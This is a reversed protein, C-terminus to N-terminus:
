ILKPVAVVPRINTGGLIFESQNIYTGVEDQISKLLGNDTIDLGRLFYGNRTTAQTNTMYVRTNFMDADEYRQKISEIALSVDGISVQTEIGYDRLIEEVGEKISSLPQKDYFTLDVVNKQIAVPNQISNANTVYTDSKAVNINSNILNLFAPSLRNSIDATLLPNLQIPARTNNLLYLFDQIIQECEMYRYYLIQLTLLRAYSKDDLIRKMKTGEIIGVSSYVPTLLFNVGLFRLSSDELLRVYLGDRISKSLFQQIDGGLIRIKVLTAIIPYKTLGAVSYVPHIISLLLSIIPLTTSLDDWGIKWWLEKLVMDCLTLIYAGPLVVPSAVQVGLKALTVMTLATKDIGRSIKVITNAIPSGEELGFKFIGDATIRTEINDLEELYQTFTSKRINREYLYVFGNTNRYIDYQFRLVTDSCSRYSDSPVKIINNSAGMYSVNNVYSTNSMIRPIFKSYEIAFREFTDVAVDLKVFGYSTFSDKIDMFSLGAFALVSLANQNGQSIMYRINALTRSIRNFWKSNDYVYEIVRERIQPIGNRIVIELEQTSKVMSVMRSGYTPQSSTYLDRILVEDYYRSIVGTDYGMASYASMLTDRTKKIYDAYTNFIMTDVYASNINSLEDTKGDVYDQFISTLQNDIMPRIKASINSLYALTYSRLRDFSPEFITNPMPINDYVRTLRGTNDHSNWLRNLNNSLKDGRSNITQLTKVPQYPLGIFLDLLFAVVNKTLLDRLHGPSDKDCKIKLDSLLIKELANLLNEEIDTTTNVRWKMIEGEPDIFDVLGTTKLNTTVVTTVKSMFAKIQETTMADVTQIKRQIDPITTKDLDFM